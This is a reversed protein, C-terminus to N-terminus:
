PAVVAPIHPLVNKKVWERDRFRLIYAAAARSYPAHDKAFHILDLSVSRLWDRASAEGRGLARDAKDGESVKLFITAYLDRRDSVFQPWDLHLYIRSDEVRKAADADGAYLPSLAVRGDTDFTLIPPDAPATPDLLTPQEHCDDVPTM